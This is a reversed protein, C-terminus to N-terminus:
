MSNSLHKTLIPLSRNFLVFGVEMEPTYDLQVVRSPEIITNLGNTTETLSFRNLPKGEEM